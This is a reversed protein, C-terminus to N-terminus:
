KGSMVEMMGREDNGGPLIGVGIRGSGGELFHNLEIQYFCVWWSVPAVMLEHDCSTVQALVVHFDNM